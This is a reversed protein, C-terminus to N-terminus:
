SDGCESDLLEAAWDPITSRDIRQEMRGLRDCIADTGQAGGVSVATELVVFAGDDDSQQLYADALGLLAEFCDSDDELVAEYHEQALVPLHLLLAADGLRLRTAGEDIGHSSVGNANWWLANQYNEIAGRYDAFAFLVDGLGGYAAPTGPWKTLAEVFARRASDIKGVSLHLHGLIVLVDASPTTDYAAEYAAVAEKYSADIREEIDSSDAWGEAQANGLEILAEDLEAAAHAGEAILRPTKGVWLPAFLVYVLGTAVALGILIWQLKM